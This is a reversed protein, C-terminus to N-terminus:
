RPAPGDISWHRGVSSIWGDGERAVLAFRSVIRQGGEYDGYLVYVILTGRTEVAQKAAAFEPRSPDRFTGQWFGVDGPAIYLDRTLRTFSDVDPARSADPRETELHWGHLVAIGTGVNRISIALWVAEDGAEAVAQGGPVALWKGDAFGVKQVPDEFRSSVLLPRLGALLSREAVRASRNASRVAAFTAIALVLTGLGTALASITTWNV